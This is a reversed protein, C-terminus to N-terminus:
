NEALLHCFKLGLSSFNHHASIDARLVKKSSYSIYLSAVNDINKFPVVVVKKVRKSYPLSFKVIKQFM